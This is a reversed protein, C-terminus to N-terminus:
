NPSAATGNYTGGDRLVGYPTGNAAGNVTSTSTGGTVTSGEVVGALGGTKGARGSVIASASSNLLTSRSLLGVLGGTAGSSVVRGSASANAITTRLAYGVLGGVYASLQGNANAGFVNVASAVGSISGGQQLGVLGGVSIFGSVTGNLALNSISGSSGGFLGVNQVARAIYLNSLTYGGGNLSGSFGTAVNASGVDTYSVPVFASGNWLRGAGDSGIPVFGTTAWMGAYSGPTGVIVRGTEGLDVNGGLAYSGALTTGDYGVLQLQHANNLLVRGQADTGAIAATPVEFALFPRTTDGPMFVFGSPTATGIGTAAALNAYATARYAYNAAGSQAPDSTVRSAGRVNNGATNQGTSYSDWYSHSLTGSDSYAVLGGSQGNASIVAGSAFANSISGGIQSGVLGGASGTSSVAGTAYVNSITGGSRGVLGGAEGQGGAVRGTAFANSITGAGQYGVMGGVDTSGSVASTAYSYTILGTTQFGVLAGTYRVGTISGGILGVNRITGGSVGFLGVFNQSTRNITLGTLVRGGGDFTGNFSFGNNGIPSFGTGAWMGAYSAPTGAVVRGTEGLDINRALSYSGVLRTADYGILQLQHSTNLLVRGQADTGATAATPVEFALFPRTSDGPLFVFGSANATGIGSAATLNAYASAKFAYNAAGSQGPDSTVANVNTVSGQYAGGLANTKGSSYSDWYSNTLTVSGIQFGLLGGTNTNGSVAGSSYVGTIRGGSQYGAFGGVNSRGSVAGTAYANSITGTGQVLGVLGGVYTDGSVAGTAYANSINNTAGSDQFGVLGGVFAGGSVSATSYVNSVSAGSQAGILSGVYANGRISGGILGVNRISAAGVSGFLGVATSTRNITLGSVVHNGGDFTITVASSTGIPVFGAGANWAATGSADIDNALRFNGSLLYNSAIGQLGYVDAILYPSASSGAGGGARLFSANAQTFRFDRAYFAPLAASNQTWNGNTLNFIGVNIAGTATIAGTYFTTNNGASLVLQGNAGTATIAANLAIDHYAEVYFTNNSAWTIADNIFIDGNGPTTKIGPGSAGSGTTLLTVNASALNRSITQAANVDVTLDYPDVLWTGTRGNAATTDVGLGIFDVNAGSTEILGGDGNAGTARATLTGTAHVTGGDGGLLVISGADGVASDASISGPMNIVNRVADRATAASIEVRGGAAAISGTMEVLATDGRTLAATPVAVRLFGGGNLDLAVSEASALGVRGLPVTITGANSVTGGLLAVYGGAGATILGKNSVAASAGRGTFALTGAMFDADAIGLTSAVFGGGTQVAGTRTIAIGNPNVLYVAGNSTVTGAVTTAATGTVRNLTASKASPQQFIVANGAAVGFGQWNIVARDSAQRVTVANQGTAITASGAAVTGGSPLADQAAAVGPCAALAAGVVGWRGLGSTLFLSRRRRAHLM